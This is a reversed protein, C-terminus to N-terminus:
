VRWQRPKFDRRKDKPLWLPHGVLAEYNVDFPNAVQARQVQEWHRYKVQASNGETLGYHALEVDNYQWGIRERSAMIDDIDRYMFVVARDDQQAYKHVMHAMGPCQIVVGWATVAVSHFAAEDTARFSQEDQYRLRTDHAIMRACITTGSRQPGTVFVVNYAGLPEFM